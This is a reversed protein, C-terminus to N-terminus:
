KTFGITLKVLRDELIKQRYDSISVSEKKVDATPINVQQAREKAIQLKQDIENAFLAANNNMETKVEGVTKQLVPIVMDDKLSSSISNLANKKISDFNTIQEQLKGQLDQISTVTHKQKIANLLSEANPDKNEIAKIYKEYDGYMEKIKTQAATIKKSQQTYVTNVKETLETIASESKEYIKRSEEFATKLVSEKYEKVKKAFETNQRISDNLSKCWREDNRASLFDFGLSKEFKQADTLTEPAKFLDLDLSLLKRLLKASHSMMFQFYEQASVNCLPGYFRVYMFMYFSTKLVLMGVTNQIIKQIKQSGSSGLIKAARPGIGKIDYIWRLLGTKPDTFTTLISRAFENGSFFQTLSRGLIGTEKIAEDAMWKNWYALGKEFPAAAAGSAVRGKKLIQNLEPKIQTLYISATRDSIKQLEKSSKSGAFGLSSGVDKEIYQLYYYGEVGEGVNVSGLRFGEPTKAKNASLRKYSDRDIRWVKKGDAPLGPIKQVEAAKVVDAPIELLEPIGEPNSVKFNVGNPLEPPTIRNIKEQYRRQSLVYNDNVITDVRESIEKRVKEMAKKFEDSNKAAKLGESNLSGLNAKELLKNAIKDIEEQTLVRKYGGADKLEKILKGDSKVANFVQENIAGKVLDVSVNKYQSELSKWYRPYREKIAVVYDNAFVEAIQEATAKKFGEGMNLRIQELNAAIDPILDSKFSNKYDNTWWPMEVVEGTSTKIQVSKEGAQRFDEIVDSVRINRELKQVIRRNVDRANAYLRRKSQIDKLLDEGLDGFNKAFYEDIKVLDVESSRVGRKLGDLAKAEAQDLARGGTREIEELLNILTDLDEATKINDLARTLRFEVDLGGKMKTYVKSLDKFITTFGGVFLAQLLLDAYAFSKGDEGTLQGLDFISADPGATKRWKEYYDALLYLDIIWVYAVPLSALLSLVFTKQFEAEQDKNDIARKSGFQFLSTGYIAASKSTLDKVDEGASKALTLFQDRLTKPVTLSDTDLGSLIRLRFTNKDILNKVLFAGNTQPLSYFNFQGFGKSPFEGFKKIHKKAAQVDRKGLRDLNYGLKKNLHRLIEYDTAKLEGKFKPDKARQFQDKQAEADDKSVGFKQLKALIPDASQETLLKLVISKRDIIGEGLPSPGSLMRVAAKEDSKKKDSKPKVVGMKTLDERSFLKQFFPNKKVNQKIIADRQRQWDAPPPTAGKFANLSFIAEQLLFKDAILKGVMTNRIEYFPNHFNAPAINSAEAVSTPIGDYRDPFKTDYYGYAKRADIIDKISWKEFNTPKGKGDILKVDFTKPYCYKGVQYSNQKCPGRELRADISKRYKESGQQYTRSAYVRDKQAQNYKDTLKQLKEPLEINLKEVKSSYSSPSDLYQNLAQRDAAVKEIKQPARRYPLQRKGKEDDGSFIATPDMRLKIGLGPIKYEEEKIVSENTNNRGDEFERVLYGAENAERELIELNDSGEGYTKDLRGDCNQKHHMLEHAISRLIDKPHRNTAYVYVSNTSPNYMATKGLPDAANSKDDVFYVSYPQDVELKKNVFDLFEELLDQKLSREAM